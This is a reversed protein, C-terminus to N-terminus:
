GNNVEGSHLAIWIGCDHYDAEANGFMQYVICKFQPIANIKTTCRDMEGCKFCPSEVLTKIRKSM